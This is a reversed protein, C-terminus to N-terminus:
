QHPVLLSTANREGAKWGVEFALLFLGELLVRSGYKNAITEAIFADEIKWVFEYLAKREEPVMDDLMSPEESAIAALMYGFGADAKVSQEAELIRQVKNMLAKNM